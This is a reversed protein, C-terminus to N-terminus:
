VNAEGVFLQRPWSIINRKFTVKVFTLISNQMINEYGMRSLM